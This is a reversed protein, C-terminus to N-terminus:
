SDSGKPLPLVTTSIPPIITNLYARIHQYVAQALYHAFPGALAAEEFTQFTGTFSSTPLTAYPNPSPIEAAALQNVIMQVQPVSASPISPAYLNPLTSLDQWAYPVIDLTNTIDMNWANFAPSGASPPVPPFTQAFLDRFAQNGPTPGASPYVYVHAWRTLDFQKNVALDLALSPSLAGGLSHGAFVLTTTPSALSELFPQLAGLHPDQLGELNQLGADTGAAIWADGSFTVPTPGVADEGLFGFLSIPNTGAIAVVIVPASSGDTGQFVVMTNDAVTSLGGPGSEEFVVPGWVIQWNGISEAVQRLTANINTAATAALSAPSGTQNATLNSLMSLTFVQQQLTFSSPPIVIVSMAM